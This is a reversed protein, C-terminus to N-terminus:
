LPPLNVSPHVLKADFPPFKCQLISISVRSAQFFRKADPTVAMPLHLYSAKPQDRSGSAHGHKEPLPTHYVRRMHELGRWILLPAEKERLFSEHHRFSLVFM